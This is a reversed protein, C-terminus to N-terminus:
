VMLLMDSVTSVVDISYLVVFYKNDFINWLLVYRFYYAFSQPLICFYQYLSIMSLVNKVRIGFVM